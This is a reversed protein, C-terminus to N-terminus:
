PDYKEKHIWQMSVMKAGNKEAERFWKAAVKKDRKVGDGRLYAEGLEQQADVDGLQAAITLYYTATSKNKTVGWGQKFSMALEYIALTLETTAIKKLTTPTTLTAPTSTPSEPQPPPYDTPSSPLATSSASPSTSPSSSKSIKGTTKSRKWTIGGVRGNNLDEVASEAAKQLLRVAEQEDKVCGWGHRLSMAYMFLGVPHGRAAAVSFYYTAVDLVEKEHYFIAIALPDTTDVDIDHPIPPANALTPPPPLPAPLANNSPTLTTPGAEEELTEGQLLGHGGGPATITDADTSVEGISVAIREAICGELKRVYRDDYGGRHGGRGRGGGGWGGHGHPPHDDFRRGGGMHPGGMHPPPGGPHPMPGMGKGIGNKRLEEVKDRILVFGLHMKGGFHDALRRDSDFISLYASCRDCVRLKQQQSGGEGNMRQMEADKDAKRRQLEEVTRMLEIAESVKGEEGLHEITTTLTAIENTLDGLDRLLQVAKPDEPTKDLRRQAAQIKRDCDNVFDQLNRYWEEEFGPHEKKELAEKYEILMKESHSKPCPGLDMKTNTFLDHPCLGCLYSKCVKADTYKINDPIGGLAEKGMLAELIKRQEAASM